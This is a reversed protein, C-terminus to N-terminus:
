EEAVVNLVYRNGNYSIEWEDFLELQSNGYCLLCHGDPSYLNSSIWADSKGDHADTACFFLALQVGDEFQHCVILSEVGPMKAALEPDSLTENISMAAPREITETATYDM